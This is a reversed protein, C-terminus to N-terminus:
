KYIYTPIIHLWKLDIDDNDNSVNYKNYYRENSIEICSNRLLLGLKLPVSNRFYMFFTLVLNDCIWLANFYWLIVYLYEYM